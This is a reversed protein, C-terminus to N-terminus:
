TGPNNVGPYPEPVLNANAGSAIKNADYDFRGELMATAIEPQGLSICRALRAYIDQIQENIITIVDKPEVGDPFETPCGGQTTSKPYWPSWTEGGDKSFRYWTDGMADTIQYLTDGSYYVKVAVPHTDQLESPLLTATIYNAIYQGPDTVRDIDAPNEQSSELIIFGGVKNLDLELIKKIAFQVQEGTYPLHYDPTKQITDALAAAAMANRYAATNNSESIAM